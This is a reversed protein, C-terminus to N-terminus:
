MGFEKSRRAKDVLSRSIFESVQEVTGSGFDNSPNTVRIRSLPKGARAFTNGNAANGSFSLQREHRGSISSITVAVLVIGKAASYRGRCDSSGARVQDNSLSRRPSISYLSDVGQQGGTLKESHGLRAFFCGGAVWSCVGLPAQAIWRRVNLEIGSFPRAPSCGVLRYRPKDAVHRLM